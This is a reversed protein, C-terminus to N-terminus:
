KAVNTYLDFRRQINLPISERIHNFRNLDIEAYIVDEEYDTTAVIQGNPDVVTSHGWANYTANMDRAPSCTAVYIQNDLARARQLLEWHLPGTILNFAAPYIMAICGKRAAIMAMEPFRIDYCIGVGIKGYETDFHTLSNGPDLTKSEQFTIRGPIDIDFLHVKRHKAILNGEPDYVSCTNYLKKTTEDREPISGGIIYAKAEKAAESLTKVSEGNPIFEAYQDFYQTGYPSNFCEPLVILKAGNKSAEMIKNKAKKLNESKDSTVSLQICAIKFTTTTM